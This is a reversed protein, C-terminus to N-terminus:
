FKFGGSVLRDYRGQTMPVYRAEEPDLMWLPDTVKDPDFGEAVLEVKRYKFTGTTEAEPQVRIFIPVAYSPLKAALLAYLGGLDAGDEVTIAAMGAKGDTGPIHVGYVNATKVWDVRSLAEGVENTSVNEGKWRYTDGIRDVFYIYGDKDKRMLDGTRFWLDGKTFVDRLLKKETAKEDNYGEFRQRVDAGILGLAEGAEEVDTPICFGDPGRVPQETEIDFKVFAINAFQSKLWGPIRGVAGVKGDFNLFSVNGETSGYFECLHPINFRDLFAQWVEPRLGNGFGTRIRHAREKPHPPSNLLYRCLEGIYVIATAKENVADDWFASASFKRRVIATAGTMLAQGIGCLGGTGHYLPLTIYVKDKPTIQCPAIFSRMMGRTRAQTLKAAKPLGTTGSTYVYLCLSAGTMGARVSRPPRKESFAELAGELDAGLKGGLTWVPPAGVILSMAGRISEDQDSGTVILKAGAINVCHALAEGELNHNILATVLGAKAFGAWAAVYDPRNEMFLAICDGPKLGQAMAWNAFRSARADFEAYTTSKGEFRFAVNKKHADVSREFDDAVIFDSEPTIDGTWKKLRQAAQFFAFERPIIVFPNM